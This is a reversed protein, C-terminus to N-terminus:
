DSLAERLVRAEAAPRFEPDADAWTVLAADVAQRADTMRGRAVELRALELHATPEAPIRRLVERIQGEAEDYRGLDRLCSAQGTFPDTGAERITEFLQPEQLAEAAARYLPLAAECHGALRLSEAELLDGWWYSAGLGFSEILRRVGPIGAALEAERGLERNVEAEFFGALGDLPAELEARLTDLLAFAGATDGARARQVALLGMEQLEVLRGGFRGIEAAVERKLVAASDSRGRMDFYKSMWNLAEVRSRDDPASELAESLNSEADEFRGQFLHVLGLGITPSVLGPDLIRAREFESEAEDFRAETLYLRGLLFHPHAAEPEIEELMGYAKGARDFQGADLHIDGVFEYARRSSPDLEITQELASVAEEVQGRGKLIMGLTGFANPDHPYLETRLRAVSLAREPQQNVIFYQTKLAFSASEELKYDHRIAAEYAALAGDVDNAEWLLDGLMWNARAFTSDIGSAGELSARSRAADLSHYFSGSFFPRLAEDSESLLDRVPLDPIADLHGTPIELDRRLQRSVQDALTLPDAGSFIHEAVPRGRDTDHLTFRIEIGDGGRDITGTVFTEAGMNGALDRRQALPLILPREPEAGRKERLIDAESRVFPDQSLDISVASPLAYQLWDLEPDGSGNSFSFLVVRHRFEPKPISRRLEKGEEDQVVVTSTAAGLDQGRFVSFLIVVALLLNLTIGIAEARSWADRGPSGHNWALIAIAPLLLLWSAVVFDTVHSSLVYRNVTWDTFELLIWGGALYAGVIHPVRRRLLERGFDTM